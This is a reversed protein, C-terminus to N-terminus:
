EWTFSFNSLYLWLRLVYYKEHNLISDTHITQFRYQWQMNCIILGVVHAPGRTKSYIKYDTGYGHKHAELM